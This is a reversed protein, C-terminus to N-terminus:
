NKAQEATLGSAGTCADYAENLLEDPADSIFAEVTAPKGDIEYGTVEVLAARITAPVLHENDILNARDNLEDLQAREAATLAAMKADIEEASLFRALGKSVAHEEPLALKSLEAKLASTFPTDTIGAVKKYIARAENVLRSYEHRQSAVSADRRARQVANLTRIHFSVGACVKSEIVNKTKLSPM